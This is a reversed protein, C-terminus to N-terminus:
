EREERVSAPLVFSGDAECPFPVVRRVAALPLAAYLHPFLEAEGHSGPEWRLAARPLATDDIVLLSLDDRGRYLLNAPQLVQHPASLHIFGDEAFREPAYSDGDLADAWRAREVIHL